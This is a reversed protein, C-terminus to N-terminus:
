QSHNLHNSGRVVIEVVVTPFTSTTRISLHYPRDPPIQGVIRRVFGFHL